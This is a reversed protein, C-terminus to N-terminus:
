NNTNQTNRNDAQQNQKYSIKKKDLPKQKKFLTLVVLRILLLWPLGHWVLDLWDIAKMGIAGGWGWRLKGVIHPEPYFPALGLTLCALILFKWDNILQM